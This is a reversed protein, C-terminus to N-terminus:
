KNDRLEKEILKKLEKLYNQTTTVDIFNMVTDPVTNLKKILDNIRDINLERSKNNPCLM